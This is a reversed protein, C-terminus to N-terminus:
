VGCRARERCSARGIEKPPPRPPAALTAPPAEPPTWAVRKGDNGEFYRSGDDARYVRCRNFGVREVTFLRGDAARKFGALPDVEPPPTSASATPKEHVGSAAAADVEKPLAAPDPLTRTSM